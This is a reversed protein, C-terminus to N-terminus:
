KREPAGVPKIQSCVEHSPNVQSCYYMCNLPDEACYTKIQEIDSTLNFFSVVENIRTENLQPGGQGSESDPSGQRAGNDFGSHKDSNSKYYFYGGIVGILIIIIVFIVIGKKKKQKNEM